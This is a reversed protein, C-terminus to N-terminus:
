KTMWVTELMWFPHLTEQGSYGRVRAATVQPQVVWGLLKSPMDELLVRDIQQTIKIRAAIEQTNQLQIFLDEVKSNSYDPPRGSMAVPAGKLWKNAIVHEPEGFPSNSRSPKALDFDANAVRQFFTARDSVVIDVKVGVRGLLQQVVQAATRHAGPYTEFRLRLDGVKEEALIKRARDLRQELPLGYGFMAYQKREEVPIGYRGPMWSGPLNVGPYAVDNIANEDMALVLAERVRKNALQPNHLNFGVNRAENKFVEDINVKATTDSKTRTRIRQIQEDSLNRPGSSQIRGTIIAAIAAENDDVIVWRVGDLYPLGPRFYDKNRELRMEVGPVRTQLKFPGSGLANGGFGGQSATGEHAHKPAINLIAVHTLFWNAPRKTTIQVIYPDLAVVKAVVPGFVGQMISIVGKPPNITANFSYVVDDATLPKGDHFRVGRELEFTFTTGTQDIKWTKAILPLVAKQSDLNLLRSYVSASVSLDGISGMWLPDNDFESRARGVFEGGRVVQSTPTPEPKRTTPVVSPTATAAAAPVTVTAAPSRTATVAQDTPAAPKALACASAATALTVVIAVWVLLSTRRSM